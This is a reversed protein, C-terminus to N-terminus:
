LNFMGRLGITFMNHTTANSGLGGNTDLLPGLPTTVKTQQVHFQGFGYSAYIGANVLKILKLDAGASLTAWEWGRYQAELKNGSGSGSISAAEYGSGLGGWLGVIGLDLLEATFQLGARITYSTASIGLPAYLAKAQSGLTNPAYGLYLGAATSSGTKYMADLQFQTQSDIYDGYKINTGTGNITDKSLDGGPVGYGIRLGLGFDAQSVTPLTLVLAAALLLKRM